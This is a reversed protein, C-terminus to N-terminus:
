PQGQPPPPNKHALNGQLQKDVRKEEGCLVESAEFASRLVCLQKLSLSLALSLSPARSAVRWKPSVGTCTTSERFSVARWAGEGSFSCTPCAPPPRPTCTELSVGQLSIFARYQFSCSFVVADLKVLPDALHVPSVKIVELM